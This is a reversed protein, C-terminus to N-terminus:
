RRATLVRAAIRIVPSMGSTWEGLNNLNSSKKSFDDIKTNSSCAAYVHNAFAATLGILTFTRM